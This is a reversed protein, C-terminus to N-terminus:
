APAFSIRVQLAVTIATGILSVCTLLTARRAFVAACAHPYTGEKWKSSARSRAGLQLLACAPLTRKRLERASFATSIQLRSSDARTPELRSSDVRTSRLRVVNLVDIERRRRQLDSLSRPNKDSTCRTTAVLGLVIHTLAPRCSARLYQVRPPSLDPRTRTFRVRAYVEHTVLVIACPSLLEIVSISRNICQRLARTCSVDATSRSVDSSASRTARAM